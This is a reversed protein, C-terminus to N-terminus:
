MAHTTHLDPVVPVGNVEVVADVPWWWGNMNFRPNSRPNSGGSIQRVEGEWISTEFMISPISLGKYVQEAYLSDSEKLKIVNLDVRVNDGEVLEPCSTHVVELMEPSYWWICEDVMLCGSDSVEVIKRPRDGFDDFMDQYLWIVGYEQGITLGKKLRVYSGMDATDGVEIFMERCWLYGVEDERVTVRGNPRIDNITVTKGALKSMAPVIKIDNVKTWAKLDKRVQLKAGRKFGTKKPKRGSPLEFMQDTWNWERNDIDLQYQGVINIEVIKAERGSYMRVMALGVGTASRPEPEGTEPNIHSYRDDLNLDSRITVRDGVSYMPM